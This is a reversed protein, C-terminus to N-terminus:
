KKFLCVLKINARLTELIIEDTSYKTKEKKDNYKKSWEKVYENLKKSYKDDLTINWFQGVKKYMNATREDKGACAIWNDNSYKKVWDFVIMLPAIISLDHKKITEKNIQLECVYLCKKILDYIKKGNEDASKEDHKLTKFIYNLSINDLSINNLVLLPIVFLTSVIYDNSNNQEKILNYFNKLGIIALI